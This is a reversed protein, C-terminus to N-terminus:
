FLRTACVKHREFDAASLVALTWKKHVHPQRDFSTPVTLAKRVTPKEGSWFLLGRDVLLRNVTGVGATKSRYPM